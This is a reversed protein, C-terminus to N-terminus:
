SRTAVVTFPSVTSSTGKYPTLAKSYMPQGDLRWTFRLVNEDYLFRVHISSAQKMDRQIMVYKSFDAFIIDGVTGVGACQELEVIPRGFIAGMPAQTLGGPPTFLPVGASGIPLNLQMLQPWCEANIYWQAGAKSNNRQYAKMLNQAVITAAVQNTEGTISVLCPGNLVGLPQGSGTGNIVADDFKFGMEEKFGKICWAELLAADEILEETDYLLAMLKHLSLEIMRFKPASKTVTAAEDAWYARIGGWRSGDARSTEDVGPLKIGNKGPSLPMWTVKDYLRSTEHVSSILTTSVDKDVLFGGESPIAENLGSPSSVRSEADQWSTRLRSDSQVGTMGTRIVAQLMHGFTKFGKRDEQAIGSDGPERGPIPTRSAALRSTTQDAREEMTLEVQLSDIKDLLATAEAIEETTKNRNEAKVRDTIRELKQFEIAIDQKLADIRNM